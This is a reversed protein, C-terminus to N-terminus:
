HDQIWPLLPSINIHFVIFRLHFFHAPLSPSCSFPLVFTHVYFWSVKINEDNHCDTKHPDLSVFCIQSCSFSLSLPKSNLHLLYSKIFFMWVHLWFPHLHLTNQLVTFDIWWRKLTSKKEWRFTGPLITGKRLNSLGVVPTLTVM